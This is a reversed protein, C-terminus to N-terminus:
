IIQVHIILKAMNPYMYPERVKKKGVQESWICVFKGSRQGGPAALQSLGDQNTNAEHHGSMGYAGHRELSDFGLREGYHEERPYAVTLGM